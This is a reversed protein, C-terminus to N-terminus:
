PSLTLHSNDLHWRLHEIWDGQYWDRCTWCWGGTATDGAIYLSVLMHLDPYISGAYQKRSVM